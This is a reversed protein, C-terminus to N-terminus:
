IGFDKIHKHELRELYKIITRYAVTKTHFEEIKYKYDTIIDDVKKFRISKLRPVCSIREILKFGQAGACYEWDSILYLEGDRINRVLYM